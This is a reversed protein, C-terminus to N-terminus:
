QNKFDKDSVLVVVLCLPEASLGTNLLTIMEKEKSVSPPMEVCSLNRLSEVRFRGDDGEGCGTLDGKEPSWYYKEYPGVVANIM